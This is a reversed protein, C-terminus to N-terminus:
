IHFSDPCHVSTTRDRLQSIPTPLHALEDMTWGALTYTEHHSDGALRIGPMMNANSFARLEVDGVRRTAM